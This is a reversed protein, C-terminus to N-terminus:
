GLCFEKFSGTYSPERKLLEALIEFKVIEKLIERESKKNIECYGKLICQRLKEGKKEKCYIQSLYNNLWILAVDNQKLWALEIFNRNESMEEKLSNIPFHSLKNLFLQMYVLKVDEEKFVTAIKWNELTWVLFVKISSPSLQSLFDFFLKSSLKFFIKLDFPNIKRLEAIDKTLILQYLKEIQYIQQSKLKQCEKRSSSTFFLRNCIKICKNEKSCLPSGLYIIHSQKFSKQKSSSHKPEIFSVKLNKSKLHLAKQSQFDCSIIFFVIFCGQIKKKFV